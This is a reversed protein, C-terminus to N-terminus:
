RFMMPVMVQIVYMQKCIKITSHKFNINLNIMDLNGIALTRMGLQDKVSSVIFAKQLPTARCCLVSSCHKTLSLFKTIMQTKQDLIYRFIFM